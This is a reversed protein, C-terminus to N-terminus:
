LLLLEQFRMQLGCHTELNLIFKANRVANFPYFEMCIVKDRLKVLSQRYLPHRTELIVTTWYVCKFSGFVDNDRKYKM